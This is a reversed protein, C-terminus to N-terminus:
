HAGASLLQMGDTLISTEDFGVLPANELLLKLTNPCNVLSASLRDSEFTLLVSSLRTTGKSTEDCFLPSKAWEVTSKNTFNRDSSLRPFSIRSGCPKARIWLRNRLASSRTKGAHSKWNQRSKRWHRRPVVTDTAGPRISVKDRPLLSVFTGSAVPSRPMNRPM